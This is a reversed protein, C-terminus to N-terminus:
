HIRSGQLSHLCPHRKALASYGEARVGEGRRRGSGRQGAGGEDGGEESEGGSGGDHFLFRLRLGVIDGDPEDAVQQGVCVQM